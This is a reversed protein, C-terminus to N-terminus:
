SGKIIAARAAAHEEKTILGRALLDDLRKLRQEITEKVGPSTEVVPAAGSIWASQLAQDGLAKTFADKLADSLVEACNAGSRARGYRNATGSSAGEVIKTGQANVLVFALHVEAAYTSGVAKNSENVAFRTLRINLRRDAATDKKLGHAGSIRLVSDAVFAVVDTTARIPFVLDDDDTGSGLTLPDDGSRSDEIVVDFSKDLLSPPLAVSNVRISEQPMFKLDVLLPPKKSKQQALGVSVLSVLLVAVSIIRRM